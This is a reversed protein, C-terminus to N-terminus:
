DCYDAWVPRGNWKEIYQRDYKGGVVWEGKGYKSPRAIVERADLDRTALVPVEYGRQGYGDHSVMRKELEVLKLRKDTVKTVEYFIPIVMSYGWTGALIDGVKIENM